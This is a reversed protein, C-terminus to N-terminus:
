LEKVEGTEFNRGFRKVFDWSLEPMQPAPMHPLNELTVLRLHSKGAQNKVDAIYCNCGYRFQIETGDNPVGVMRTALDPSQRVAAIQDYTKPPCNFAKLRRQWSDVANHFGPTDVNYNVFENETTAFLQCRRKFANL